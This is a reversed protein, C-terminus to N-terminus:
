RDYWVERAYNYVAVELPNRAEFEARFSEFNVTTAPSTNLEPVNPKQTLGLLSWINKLSNDLNEYFGIYNFRKEIEVKFNNPEVHRPFHNLYNPSVTELVLAFNRENINEPTSRNKYKFASVFQEFPERLITIFQEAWPLSDLVGFGRKMNFHGYVICRGQKKVLDNAYTQTIPQPNTRLAENRYHLLVAKGFEKNVLSRVSSGACKPVHIFAIPKNIDLSPRSLSKM